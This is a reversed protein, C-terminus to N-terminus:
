LNLSARFRPDTQYLLPQIQYLLPRYEPPSSPTSVLPAVVGTIALVTIIITVTHRRLRRHPSWVVVPFKSPKISYEPQIIGAASCLITLYVIVYKLKPSVISFLTSNRLLRTFYGTSFFPELFAVSRRGICLQSPSILALHINMLINSISIAIRLFLLISLQYSFHLSM